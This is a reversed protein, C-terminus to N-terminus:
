SQGSAPPSNQSLAPSCPPPLPQAQAQACLGSSRASPGQWHTPLYSVGQKEVVKELGDEFPPPQLSVSKSLWGRKKGGKTLLPHCSGSFDPGPPEGPQPCSCSACLWRPRRATGGQSQALTWVAEM